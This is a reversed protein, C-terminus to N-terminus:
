LEPTLFYREVREDCTRSLAKLLKRDKQNYILMITMMKRTFAIQRAMQAKEIPTVKGM